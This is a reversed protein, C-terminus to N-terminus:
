ARKFLLHWYPVDHKGSMVSRPWEGLLEFGGKAASLYGVLNDKIYRRSTFLIVRGHDPNLPLKKAEIYFVAAKTGPIESKLTRPLDEADEFEIDVLDIRREFDMTRHNEDFVKRLPNLTMAKGFDNYQERMVREYDALTEANEYFSGALLFMDGPQCYHRIRELMTQEDVNGFTGGLIAILKSKERRIGARTWGTRDTFDFCSLRITIRKDGFVDENDDILEKLKDKTEMLMFFSADCVFVEPPTNQSRAIEAILKWDKDPSGAGLIILQEIPPEGAIAACSKDLLSRCAGYLGYEGRGHVKKWQAPAHHDYYMFRQDVVGHTDDWPQKPPNGQFEPDIFIVIPSTAESKPAITERFDKSCRALWQDYPLTCFQEVVFKAIVNPDALNAPADIEFGITKIVCEGIWRRLASDENASGGKFATKLNGQHSEFYKHRKDGRESQYRKDFFRFVRTEAKLTPYKNPEKELSFRELCQFKKRFEVYRFTM